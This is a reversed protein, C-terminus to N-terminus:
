VGNREIAIKNIHGDYVSIKGNLYISLEMTIHHLIITRIMQRLACCEPPPDLVSDPNRKKSGKGAKPEVPGQEPGSRHWLHLHDASAPVSCRLSKESAAGLFGFNNSASVYM